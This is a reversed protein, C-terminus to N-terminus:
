KGLVRIISIAALCRHQSLGANATILIGALGARVKRRSLLDQNFVFTRLCGRLEYIREVARPANYECKSTKMRLGDDLGRTRSVNFSEGVPTTERRQM